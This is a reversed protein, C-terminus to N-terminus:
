NKGNTKKRSKESPPKPLISNIEFACTLNPSFNFLFGTARENGGDNEKQQKIEDQKDM